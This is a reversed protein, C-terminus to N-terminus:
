AHLRAGTPDYFAPPAIEAEIPPGDLRTVFVRAGMRAAGDAVLALAIPAGLVPSFRSTTVHGLALPGAAGAPRTADAMVQAGIELPRGSRVRLGVLRRRGPAALHALRLSRAGVFDGKGAGVLRSLGLDDPTCSGDSDQGIIPYGKEARLVDLAELGYPELGLPAGRELLLDWAAAGHDAPVNVEFGLEGSFSTRMLRLPVGMFAGERVSMHPFAERALDVGAVLPALIERARPGQV